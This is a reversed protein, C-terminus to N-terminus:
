TSATRANKFVDVCSKGSANKPIAEIFQVERVRKSPTVYEAVYDMLNQPTPCDPSDPHKLVVFAKPIEEGMTNQGDEDICGIDGTRLCGDKTFINQNAENNNEYGLM